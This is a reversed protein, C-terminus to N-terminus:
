VGLGNKCHLPSSTDINSPESVLHTAYGDADVISTDSCADNGSCFLFAQAPLHMHRVVLDQVVRRMTESRSESTTITLVRPAKIGFHKEHLRQQWSEAYALFKRLVTARHLFAESERVREAPAITMTGRDMELFFYAARTKGNPTTQRLGFIADPILHVTGHAGGYHMSVPWRGPMALRRTEEPAHGLIEEFPILSLDERERCRIELDIMFKSVALTHDLNERVFSRNRARWDTAGISTGFQEKLYRAGAADLGYVLAKSGGARYRDIQSIPRDLYGARYLLTLRRSLRDPSRDPFLRYVDDARVFRHRYICRIIAADDDTLALRPAEGERRFRPYSARVTGM